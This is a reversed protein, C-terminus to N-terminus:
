HIKKKKKEEEENEKEKKNIYDDKDCGGVLSQKTCVVGPTERCFM